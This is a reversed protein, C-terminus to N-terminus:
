LSSIFFADRLVIFFDFYFAAVSVLRSLTASFAGSM